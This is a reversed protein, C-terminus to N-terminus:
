VKSNNLYPDLGNTETDIAITNGYPLTQFISKLASLSMSTDLQHLSDNLVWSYSKTSIFAFKSTDASM